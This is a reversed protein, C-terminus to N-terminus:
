FFVTVLHLREKWCCISCVNILKNIHVNIIPTSRLWDKLSFLGFCLLWCLYRKYQTETHNHPKQKNKKQQPPPKTQKNTRNLSCGEAICILIPFVEWVFCVWRAIVQVLIMGTDWRAPRYMYSLCCSYMLLNSGIKYIFFFIM